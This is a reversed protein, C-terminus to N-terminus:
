FELVRFFGDLFFREGLIHDRSGCFGGAARIARYQEMAGNSMSM